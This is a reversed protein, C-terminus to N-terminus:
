PTGGSTQVTEFNGAAQKAEIERLVARLQRLQQKDAVTASSGKGELEKIQRSVSAFQTRSAAVGSAAPVKNNDRELVGGEKEKDKNGRVTKGATRQHHASPKGATRQHHASSPPLVAPKKLPLTGQKEGEWDILELWDMPATSFFNLAREIDAAPIRILASMRAADMPTGNRVLWGRWETPATSALIELFAWTGYLALGDTQNLMHGLGEGVLKNPKSYYSLTRVTRTTATEYLTEWQRIHYAKTM